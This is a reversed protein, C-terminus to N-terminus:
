AFRFTGESTGDLLLIIRASTGESICKLAINVGEAWLEGREKEAKQWDRRIKAIKRKKKFKVKREGEKCLARLLLLPFSGVCLVNSESLFM